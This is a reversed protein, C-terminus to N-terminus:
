SWANRPQLGNTMQPSARADMWGFKPRCLDIALGIKTPPTQLEASLSSVGLAAPKAGHRTPIVAM